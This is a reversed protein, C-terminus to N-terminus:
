VEISAKEMLGELADDGEEEDPIKGVLGREWLQKGTLKVEEKVGRKKKDEVEQEEKRRKEAEILEEKFRRSWALFSERTVPTGHFKRNEEEEVKAKETDIVAQAAQQREAILLEAGDKLTSVLTFVMAMGLNEEITPELSELLNPKDEQIDFHKYKPANPPPILDLRPPEDPYGPPYEVRLIISAVAL